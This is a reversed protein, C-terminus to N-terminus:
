QQASRLVVGHQDLQLVPLSVVAVEDGTVVPHIDVQSLDTRILELTAEGM